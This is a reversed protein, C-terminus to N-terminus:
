GLYVGTDHSRTGCSLCLCQRTISDPDRYGGPCKPLDKGWEPRQEEMKVMSYKSRMIKFLGVLESM